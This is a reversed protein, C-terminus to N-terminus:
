SIRDQIDIRFRDNYSDDAVFLAKYNHDELDKYTVRMRLGEKMKADLYGKVRTDDTVAHAECSGFLEEKTVWTVGKGGPSIAPRKKIQFVPLTTKYQIDFAVDVAIGRGENVIVFVKEFRGDSVWQLRLYPRMEYDRQKSVEKLTEHAIQKQDRTEVATWFAALGAECLLFATVTSVLRDARESDLSSLYDFFKISFLPVCILAVFVLLWYRFRSTLLKM